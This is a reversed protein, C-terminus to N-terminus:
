SRWCPIQKADTVHNPPFTPYYLPTCVKSVEALLDICLIADMDSIEPSNVQELTTKLLKDCMPFSFELSDQLMEIKRINGKGESVDFDIDSIPSKIKEKM